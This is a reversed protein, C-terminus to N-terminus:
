CAQSGGLLDNIMITNFKFTNIIIHINQLGLMFHTKTQSWALLYSYIDYPILHPRQFYVNVPMHYLDIRGWLIYMYYVMLYLTMWM